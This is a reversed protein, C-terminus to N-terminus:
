SGGSSPTVSRVRAGAKVERRQQMAAAKALAAAAKEKRRAAKAAAEVQKYAAWAPWLAAAESWRKEQAAAKAAAKADAEGAKAQENEQIM